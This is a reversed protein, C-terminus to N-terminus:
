RSVLSKFKNIFKILIKLLWPSIRLVLIKTQQGRSISFGNKKLADAYLVSKDKNYYLLSYELKDKLNRELCVKLYKNKEKSPMNISNITNSLIQYYGDFGDLHQKLTKTVRSDSSDSIVVTHLPEEITKCKYCYFIPLLLQWNQPHRECYISRKPNVKDFSSMRVMCMGALAISEEGNFLEVFMREKLVNHRQVFKLSFDKGDVYNAYCRVIGYDESLTRFKNVFTSISSPFSFYDDSDPWILYEGSVYKVGKDIAAAQGNNNQYIYLLSYGKEEFKSKYSEITEKSNDTSGDDVVIMEIHPYDQVLVSDLLRHIVKAGNYCPTLITVLNKITNFTM